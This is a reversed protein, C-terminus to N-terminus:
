AAIQNVIQGIHFDSNRYPQTNRSCCGLQQADSNGVDRLITATAAASVLETQLTNPTSTLHIAGGSANAGGRVSVTGRNWKNLPNYAPAGTSPDIVPKGTKPDLLELDARAV